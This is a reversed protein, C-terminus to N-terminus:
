IEFGAKAIFGDKKGGTLKNIKKKNGRHHCFLRGYESQPAKDSYGSSPDRFADINYKAALMTLVSQDHRHDIFGDFNPRGCENPMDTVIRPDRMYNLWEKLISIAKEGKRWLSYTAKIHPADWYKETDCGMLVFADRKTWIYQKYREGGCAGHYFFAIDRDNLLEFIPNLSAIATAGSDAYLVLAGDDLERMAELIVFPKWIWYGGGRPQSLISKNERYFGQQKLWSDRYKFHKDIGGITKVSCDLLDQSRYFKENAYSVLVKKM